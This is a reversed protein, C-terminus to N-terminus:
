PKAERAPADPAEAQPPTSVATLKVLMVIIQITIVIGLVLFMRNCILTVRRQQRLAEAKAEYIQGQLRTIEKERELMYFVQSSLVREADRRREEEVTLQLRLSERQIQDLTKGNGAGLQAKSEEMRSWDAVRAAEILEDETM